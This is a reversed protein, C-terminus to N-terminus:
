ARESSTIFICRGDIKKQFDLLSTSYYMNPLRLPIYDPTSLLKTTCSFIARVKVKKKGAAGEHRWKKSCQILLETTARTTGQVGIMKMAM